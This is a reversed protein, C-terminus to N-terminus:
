RKEWQNSYSCHGLTTPLNDKTKPKTNVPKKRQYIPPLSKEPESTPMSPRIRPMEEWFGPPLHRREEYFDEFDPKKEPWLYVSQVQVPYEGPRLTKYKIKPIIIGDTSEKYEM